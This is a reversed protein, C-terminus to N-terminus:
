LIEKPVFEQSNDVDYEQKAAWGSVKNSDIIHITGPLM